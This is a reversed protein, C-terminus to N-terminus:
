RGVATVTEMVVPQLIHTVVAASGCALGWSASVVLVLLCLRLTRSWSKIAERATRNTESSGIM